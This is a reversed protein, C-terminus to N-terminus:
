QVGLGFLGALGEKGNGSSSEKSSGDSRANGSGHVLVVDACGGFDPFDSLWLCVNDILAKCSVLVGAVLIVGVERRDLSERKLTLTRDSSQIKVGRVEFTVLLAVRTKEFLNENSYLIANTSATSHVLCRCFPGENVCLISSRRETTKPTFHVLGQRMKSFWICYKKTKVPENRVIPMQDSNQSVFRAYSIQHTLIASSIKFDRFTISVSVFSIIRFM